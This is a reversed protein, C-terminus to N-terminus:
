TPVAMNNSQGRKKCNIRLQVENGYKQESYVSFCLHSYGTWNSIPLKRLQAGNQARWFLSRTENKSRNTVDTVISAGVLADTDTYDTLIDTAVTTSKIEFLRKTM